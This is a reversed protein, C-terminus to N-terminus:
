SAAELKYDEAGPFSEKLNISRERAAKALHM